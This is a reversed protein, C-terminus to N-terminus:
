ADKHYYILTLLSDPVEELQGTATYGLSEYFRCLRPEELITELQWSAAGPCLAEAMPLAQRAIGRGQFDPHVFLPAFRYRGQGLSQVRIGGAPQDDCLILYYCTDPQSMREQLRGIPECAPSRDYDHYREVLPLFAAVQLDYLTETDSLSAPVLRIEM